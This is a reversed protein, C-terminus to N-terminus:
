RAGDAGRAVSLAFSRDVEQYAALGARAGPAGDSAVRISVTANNHQQRVGLFAPQAKGGFPAPQPAIRLSGNGTQWWTTAPTGLMSWIPSLRASRFDDAIAYDGGHAEGGPAPPLTPAPAVVPVPVGPPLIVPWGDRWAVPLLFTERGANYDLEKASWPRSALFVSWWDGAPTQVLDAHGAQVVPNPRRPDLGVQSLIPADPAEWPGDLQRSRFAVERHAEKTGGEACILYYYGDRRFLHPGEIWYPKAALHAGGDVIVRRTGTMAFTKLDIEQLWIARHGSYRPTGVPPGNNVVYARGDTDFFLSPDIGEFPLLHPESWPGAPDSATLVFAGGCGQCTTILYFVGDRYALAPAYIGQWTDLGAIRLQEPRDLAAGIQRWHVLDRSHFVPLGPWFTFSSTALYYDMGVRIVTPDSYSGAIM